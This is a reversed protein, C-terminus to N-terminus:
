LGLSSRDIFVLWDGLISLLFALNTDSAEIGPYVHLCKSDSFMAFVYFDDVLWTSIPMFLFAFEDLCSFCLPFSPVAQLCLLYSSSSFHYASRNLCNVWYAGSFTTQRVSAMNFFFALFPNLSPLRFHGSFYLWKSVNARFHPKTTPFRLRQITCSRMDHPEILRFDNAMPM